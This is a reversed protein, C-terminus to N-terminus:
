LHRGLSTLAGDHEGEVDIGSRKAEIDEGAKVCPLSKFLFPRLDEESDSRSHLLHVDFIL